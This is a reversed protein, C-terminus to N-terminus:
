SSDRDMTYVVESSQPSISFNAAMQCIGDPLRFIAIRARVMGVISAAQNAGRRMGEGCVVLTARSKNNVYLIKAPLGGTSYNHTSTPNMEELLALLTYIYTLNWDIEENFDM